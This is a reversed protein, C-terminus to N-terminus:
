LSREPPLPLGPLPKAPAHTDFTFGYRNAPRTRVQDYAQLHSYALKLFPTQIGHTDARRIMDGLIHDAETPGGREIDRLMSATYGSYRDTLQVRHIHQQDVHTPYDCAAAVQECEELLTRIFTEGALTNIIEGVTARMTCTAAALTALFVFKDWMAQEINPSLSFDIPTSSFLTALEPLHRPFPETRPGILLRDIQNLHRIEGTPLLTLPAHAVGGLIRERGFRADLTNLHATGNLLPLVISHIGIAPAIAQLASALDYAKCSLIVVDFIGGGPTLHTILKPVVQLNGKPSTIRLGYTHINQARARRVLFTVDVGAQQMHAGFYGGIAGAGLVLIRM